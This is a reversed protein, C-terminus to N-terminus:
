SKGAEGKFCWLAQDTRMVVSGNALALSANTPEAVSNTSLIHFESEAAFVFVDGSQNPAYIRNGAKSLSSWSTAKKGPGKLREQWLVRGTSKEWCEALGNESLYYLHKDTAVGSGFRFKGKEQTWARQPETATNPPRVALATTGSMAVLIGDSFQPTVYTQLGLGGSQWLLKGNLADYGGLRFAFSMVLEKRGNNDIVTPTSWSGVPPGNSSIKSAEQANPRLADTRWAIKGTQKNVAVMSQPKEGPGVYAYVLDGSLCPSSATGFMHSIKGLEAHWLEKGAFDYSYLGASGFFAIVREGDTVASAACYPNNEKMTEEPQDYTPGAQWLIAGSKSDVCWLTRRNGIAQTVFVRDGWIIPSSNGPEPLAVRWQVNNTRDWSLPFDSEPTSGDTAPGRWNPWNAGFTGITFLLLALTRM